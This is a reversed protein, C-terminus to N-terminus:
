LALRTITDKAEVILLDKDIDDIFVRTNHPNSIISLALSESALLFFTDPGILDFSLKKLRTSHQNEHRLM